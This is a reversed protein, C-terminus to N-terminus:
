ALKLEDQVAIPDPAPIKFIGKPGKAYKGGFYQRLVVWLAKRSTRPVVNAGNEWRRGPVERWAKVFNDADGRRFPTEVRYGYPVERIVIDAKRMTVAGKFRRRMKNALVKLGLAEVQDAALLVESIRYKDASIAADHVLKNAAVRVEETIGGNFGRRCEPGISLSISIADVLPRGCISCHTALMKTAPANEYTTDM